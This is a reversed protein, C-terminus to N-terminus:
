SGKSSSELDAHEAPRDAAPETDAIEATDEIDANHPTTPVQKTDETSLQSEVDGWLRLPPRRFGRPVHEEARQETKGPPTSYATSPALPMFAGIGISLTWGCALHRLRLARQLTANRIIADMS